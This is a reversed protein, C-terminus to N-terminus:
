EVNLLRKREAILGHGDTDDTTLFNRSWGARSDREAVLDPQRALIAKCLIRSTGVLRLDKFAFSRTSRAAALSTVM